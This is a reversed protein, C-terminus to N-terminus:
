KREKFNFSLSVRMEESNNRTVYHELYNPFIYYKGKVAPMMVDTEPAGRVRPAFVISGAGKPVKIYVVGSVFSDIHNHLKTSMNKEHIHGWCDEVVVRQKTTNYFDDSIKSLIDNVIPTRPCYSDEVRSSGPDNTFKKSYNDILLEALKDFDADVNGEMIQVAFLTKLNTNM